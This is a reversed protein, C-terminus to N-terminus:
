VRTKRILILLEYAAFTTIILFVCDVLGFAGGYLIGGIFALLVDTFNGSRQIESGGSLGSTVLAMYVILFLSGYLLSKQLENKKVFFGGIFGLLPVMFIFVWIQWGSNSVLPVSTIISIIGLVLLYLISPAGLILLFVLNTKKRKFSNNQSEILEYSDHSDEEM